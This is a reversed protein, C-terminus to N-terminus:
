LKRKGVLVFPDGGMYPKDIPRSVPDAPTRISSNMALVADAATMTAPTAYTSEIDLFLVRDTNSRFGM